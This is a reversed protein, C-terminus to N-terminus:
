DLEYIRGTIHIMLADIVNRIGERFVIALSIAVVILFIIAVLNVEGSEDKFFNRIRSLLMLWQIELNMMLM